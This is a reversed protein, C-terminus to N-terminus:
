LVSVSLSGEMRVWRCVGGCSLSWRVVMYGNLAMDIMIYGLGSGRVWCRFLSANGVQIVLYGSVNHLAAYGAFLRM